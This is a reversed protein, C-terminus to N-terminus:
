KYRENLPIRLDRQLSVFFSENPGTPQRSAFM